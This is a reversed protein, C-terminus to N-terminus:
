QLDTAAQVAVVATVLQPLATAVVAEVRLLLTNLM